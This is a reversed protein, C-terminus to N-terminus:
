KDGEILNVIESDRYKEYYDENSHFNELIYSFNLDAKVLMFNGTMLNENFFREISALNDTFTPAVICPIVDRQTLTNLNNAYRIVQNFAEMDAKTKKLECVVLFDIVSEKKDGTEIFGDVKYLIDLVGNCIKLQRGIYKIKYLLQEDKHENLHELILDAFEEHNKEIFDEMDKELVEFVFM